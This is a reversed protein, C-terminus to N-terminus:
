IKGTHSIETVTVSLSQLYSIIFVHTNYFRSTPTQAGDTDTEAKLGIGGRGTM